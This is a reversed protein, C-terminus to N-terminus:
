TWKVGGNLTLVCHEGWLFCKPIKMGCHGPIWITPTYIAEDEAILDAREQESLHWWSTDIGWM